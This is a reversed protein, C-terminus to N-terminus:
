KATQRAAPWTLMILVMFHQHHAAQAIRPHTALARAQGETTRGARMVFSKITRRQRGDETLEPQQTDTM